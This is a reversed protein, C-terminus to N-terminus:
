LSVRLREAIAPMDALAIIGQLSGGATGDSTILLCDVPLLRRHQAGFRQLTAVLPTTPAVFVATDAANEHELVAAVLVTTVDLARSRQAGLWYTINRITLLGRYHAGDYVPLQSFHREYMLRSAAGLHDTPKVCLVRRSTYEAVTPPKTLMDRVHCIREVAWDNPEALIAGGGREHVIVNRLRAFAKLDEAYAQITVDTQRLADVQQVFPIGRPGPASDAVHAEIAVFAELYRTSNANM